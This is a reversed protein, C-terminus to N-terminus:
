RFSRHRDSRGLDIEADSETFNQNRRSTNRTDWRERNTSTCKMSIGGDFPSDGRPSKGKHSVVHARVHPTSYNVEAGDDTKDYNDHSENGDPFRGITSRLSIISWRSRSFSVISSHFASRTLKM